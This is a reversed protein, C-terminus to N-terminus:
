PNKVAKDKLKNELEEIEKESNVVTEETDGTASVLVVTVDGSRVILNKELSQVHHNQQYGPSSM